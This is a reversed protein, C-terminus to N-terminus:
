NCFIIDVYIKYLYIFFMILSFFIYLLLNLFFLFFNLINNFIVKLDVENLYTNIEEPIIEYFGKKIANFQEIDDRNYLKYNM